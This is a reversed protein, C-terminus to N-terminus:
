QTDLEADSTDAIPFIDGKGFVLEGLGPSRILVDGNPEEEVDEFDVEGRLLQFVSIKDSLVGCTTLRPYQLICCMGPPKCDVM